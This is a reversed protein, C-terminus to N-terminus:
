TIEHHRQDKFRIIIGYNNKGGTIFNHIRERSDIKM